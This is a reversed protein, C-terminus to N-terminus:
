IVSRSEIKYSGSLINDIAEEFHEPKIESMFGLHGINIGLIPIGKSEVFMATRLFTGDGGLSIAFDANFDKGEFINSKDIADLYQASSEYFGSEVIVNCGKARLLDVVRRAYKSKNTQHM